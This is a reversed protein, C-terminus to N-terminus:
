DQTNMLLVSTSASVGTSQGGSGFLQGMQFSGSAPLSQPCSSFPIVSSPIAHVHTQTPQLLQHHIPLGPTSCDISHCLTLCPQAVSSFQHTRVIKDWIYVCHEQLCFILSMIWYHPFFQPLFELIPGHSSAFIVLWSAFM